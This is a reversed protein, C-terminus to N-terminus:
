VKRSFLDVLDRFLAGLERFFRGLLPKKSAFILFLSGVSHSIVGYQSYSRGKFSESISQNAKILPSNLRVVVFSHMLSHIFTLYSASLFCGSHTHYVSLCTATFM